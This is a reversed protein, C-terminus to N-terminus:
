EDKSKRFDARLGYKLSFEILGKHKAALRALLLSGTLLLALTAFPWVSNAIFNLLADKMAEAVFSCDPAFWRSLFDEM